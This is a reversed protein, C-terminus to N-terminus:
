ISIKIICYGLFEDREEETQLELNDVGDSLQVLPIAFYSMERLGYAVFQSPGMRLPSEPRTLRKCNLQMSKTPVGAVSGTERIAVDYTENIFQGYCYSDTASVHSQKIVDWGGM